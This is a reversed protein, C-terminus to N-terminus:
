SRYFNGAELREQLNLAQWGGFDNFKEKFYTEIVNEGGSENNQEM